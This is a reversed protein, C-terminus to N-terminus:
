ERRKKRKKSKKFIFSKHTCDVGQFDAKRVDQYQEQLSNRYKGQNMETKINRSSAALRFNSIFKIQEMQSIELGRKRRRIKKSSSIVFKRNKGDCAYKSSNSSKKLYSKARLVSQSKKKKRFISKRNRRESDRFLSIKPGRRKRQGFSRRRSIDNSHSKRKNNHHVKKAEELFNLNMKEDKEGEKYYWLCYGLPDPLLEYNKAKFFHIIETLTLIKVKELKQCFIHKNKKTYKLYFRTSNIENEMFRADKKLFNLYNKTGHTQKRSALGICSYGGFKSLLKKQKLELESHPIKFSTLLILLATLKREAASKSTLGKVLLKFYKKTLRFTKPDTFLFLELCKEVHRLTKTSKKHDM